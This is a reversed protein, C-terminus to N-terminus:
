AEQRLALRIARLYADIVLREDFEREAKLRSMAAGVTSSAAAV